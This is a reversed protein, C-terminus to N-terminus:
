KWETCFDIASGEPGTFNCLDLGGAVCSQSTVVFEFQAFRGGHPNSASSDHSRGANLGQRSIADLGEVPIYQASSSKITRPVPRGVTGILQDWQGKEQAACREHPRLV